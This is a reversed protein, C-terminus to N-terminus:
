GDFNLTVISMSLFLSTFVIVSGNQAEEDSKASMTAMTLPHGRNIKLDFTFTVIPMM